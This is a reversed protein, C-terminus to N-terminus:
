IVIMCAHYMVRLAELDDSLECFDDGIGIISHEDLIFNIRLNLLRISGYIWIGWFYFLVFQEILTHHPWRRMFRTKWCCKEIERKREREPTSKGRGYLEELLFFSQSSGERALSDIQATGPRTSDIRARYFDFCFKLERIKEEEKRLHLWGRLYM